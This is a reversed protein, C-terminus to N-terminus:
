AISANHFIFTHAWNKLNASLKCPRGNGEFVEDNMTPEEKDDWMRRRTSKADQIYEIFLGLAKEISM